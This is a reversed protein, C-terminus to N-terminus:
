VSLRGVRQYIVTSINPNSAEVMCVEIMETAHSNPVDYMMFRFISAIQILTYDLLKM